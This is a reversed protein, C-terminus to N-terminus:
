TSSEVREETGVDPVPVDGVHSCHEGLGPFLYLMAVHSQFFEAVESEAADHAHERLHIGVEEGTRGHACRDRRFSRSTVIRFLCHWSSCSRRWILAFSSKSRLPRTATIVPPAPSM